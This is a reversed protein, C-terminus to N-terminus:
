NFLLMQNLIRICTFIYSMPFPAFMSCFFFVTGHKPNECHLLLFTRLILLLSVSSTKQQLCASGITTCFPNQRSHHEVFAYKFFFVFFIGQLPNCHYVQLLFLFWNGIQSVLLYNLREERATTENLNLSTRCSYDNVRQSKIANLVSFIDKTFLKYSKSCYATRDQMLFFM